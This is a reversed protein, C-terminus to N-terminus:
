YDPNPWFLFIAVEQGSRGRNSYLSDNFGSLRFGHRRYFRFAPYNTNQTEITIGRARNRVAVSKLEDLMGGGVGQRRADSRVRIDILWITANWRLHHWTLLGKVDGDVEAVLFKVAELSAAESYSTLWETIKGDDYEKRLPVSLEKEVLRWTSSDDREELTFDFIRDTEYGSPIAPLCRAERLSISRYGTVM